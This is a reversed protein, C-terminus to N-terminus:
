RIWNDLNCNLVQCGTVRDEGTLWVKLIHLHILILLGYALNVSNSILNKRNM